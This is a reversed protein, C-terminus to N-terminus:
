KYVLGRKGCCKKRNHTNFKGFIAQTQLTEVHGGFAKTAIRIRLIELVERMQSKKQLNAIRTSKAPAIGQLAFDTLVMGVRKLGQATDSYCELFMIFIVARQHQQQIPFAQHRAIRLFTRPFSCGLMSPENYLTANKSKLFPLNPQANGSYPSHRAFRLYTRPSSWGRM